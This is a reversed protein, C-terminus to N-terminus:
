RLDDGRGTYDAEEGEPELPDAGRRALLLYAGWPGSEASLTGGEGDADVVFRGPDLGLVRAPAVVADVVGAVGDRAPVAVLLEGLFGRRLGAGTDAAVVQFGVPSLRAVLPSWADLAAAATRVDALNLQARCVVQGDTFRM